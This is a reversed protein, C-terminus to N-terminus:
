GMGGADGTAPEDDKGNLKSYFHDPLKDKIKNVFKLKKKLEPLDKKFDDFGVSPMAKSNRTGTRGMYDGLANKIYVSYLSPQLTHRIRKFTDVGELDGILDMFHKIDFSDPNETKEDWESERLSLYALYTNITKM